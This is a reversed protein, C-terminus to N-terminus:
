RPLRRPSTSQRSSTSPKPAKSLLQLVHPTYACRVCELACTCVGLCVHVCMCEACFESATFLVTWLPFLNTVLSMTKLYMDFLSTEAAAGGKLALAPTIVTGASLKLGGTRMARATPQASPRLDQAPLHLAFCAPLVAALVLLRSSSLMKKSIRSDLKKLKQCTQCVTQSSGFLHPQCALPRSSLSPMLCEPVRPQLQGDHHSCLERLTPYQRQSEEQVDTRGRGPRERRGSTSLPQVRQTAHRRSSPTHTHTPNERCTLTYRYIYIYIYRCVSQAYRSDQTYRYM